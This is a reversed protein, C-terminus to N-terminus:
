IFGFKGKKKIQAVPQTESDKEEAKLGETAEFHSIEEEKPVKEPEKEENQQTIESEDLDQLERELKRLKELLSDVERGWEVKADEDEEIEFQAQMGELEEKTMSINKLIKDKGVNQSKVGTVVLKFPHKTAKTEKEEGKNVEEIANKNEGSIENTERITPSATKKLRNLFNM